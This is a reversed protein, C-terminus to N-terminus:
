PTMPIHHLALPTMPLNILDQKTPTFPMNMPTFPINITSEQEFKIPSVPTTSEWADIRGEHLIPENINLPSPLPRSLIKEGLRLLKRNYEKTTDTESIKKSVKNEVVKADKAVEIDDNTLKSNKKKL